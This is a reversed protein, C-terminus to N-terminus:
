AAAAAGNGNGNGNGSTEPRTTALTLMFSTCRYVRPGGLVNDLRVNTLWARLEGALKQAMGPGQEPQMNLENEKLIEGQDLSM